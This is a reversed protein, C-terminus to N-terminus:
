PNFFHEVVGNLNNRDTNGYIDTCYQVLIKRNERTDAKKLELAKFLATFEQLLRKEDIFLLCVQTVPQAKQGNDLLIFCEDIRFGGDPQLQEKDVTFQRLRVEKVGNREYRIMLTNDRLDKKPIPLKLSNGIVTFTDAGFYSKLSGPSVGENMLSENGRTGTFLLPRAKVLRLADQSSIESVSSMVYKDPLEVRYKAKSPSLVVADSAIAFQLMTQLNLQQGVILEKNTKQDIIKGNVSLISYIGVEQAMACFLSGIGICVILCIKNKM